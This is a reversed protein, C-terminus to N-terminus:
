PELFSRDGKLARAFLGTVESREACLEFAHARPGIRCVLAERAKDDLPDVRTDTPAPGEFFAYASGTDGLARLAVLLDGTQISSFRLAGDQGEATVVVRGEPSLTLISGRVAGHEIPKGTDAEWMSLPDTLAVTRGRALFFLRRAGHVGDITALLKDRSTGLDVLRLENQAGRWAIAVADGDPTFAAAVPTSGPVGPLAQKVTCRKSDWFLVETASLTVIESGEPSMAVSLIEDVGGEGECTKQDKADRVMVLQKHARVELRGDASWATRPSSGLRAIYQGGDTRFAMVRAIWTQLYTKRVGGTAADFSRFAGSEYSAGLVKGDGSFAAAVPAHAHPGTLPSRVDARDRVSGDEASVHYKGDPSWSGRATTRGPPPGGDRAEEARDLPMKGRPALTKEDVRLAETVEALPAAELLGLSKGDRLPFVDRLEAGRRAPLSRLQKQRAVDFTSLREGTMVILAKGDSTFHLRRPVGGFDRIVGLERGSELDWVSVAGVPSGCAAVPARASTALPSCPGEIVRLKGLTRADLIEMGTDHAAVLLASESGAFAIDVAGHPVRGHERMARMDFVTIAEATSIALRDSSRSWATSSVSGRVEAAADAFAAAGARAEFAAVARDFLAQAAPADGLAREARGAGHLAYGDPAASLYLARARLLKDRSSSSIGEALAADAEALVRARDAGGLAAAPASALMNKVEAIAARTDASARSDAEIAAMAARAEEVRGLRALARSLSAWGRPAAEPCREASRRLVRVARHLQGSALLSPARDQAARAARCPDERPKEAPPPPLAVPPLDLPGGSACAALLLTPLLLLPRPRPM